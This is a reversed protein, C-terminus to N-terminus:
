NLLKWWKGDVATKRRHCNACRVDCKEIESQISGWSYKQSVAESISFRKEEGSRHDFELVLPDSEGCDACPNSLLYQWIKNRVMDIYKLNRDKTMEIYRDRNKLYHERSYRSHCVKCVSSRRKGRVKWSFHDDPKDLKCKSCIMDGQLM